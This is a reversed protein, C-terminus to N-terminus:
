CAPLPNTLLVSGEPKENDSIKHYPILLKFKIKKNALEIRKINGLEWQKWFIMPPLNAISGHLRVNNYKTYFLTLYIEAQELSEFHRQDLSKGLIAHFSEIHGNEQPTYPHTFVQNLHNEKFFDQVMKASFRPDNDNRVEITIEKKLMDNPQLHDIIISEWIRKVTHQTISFGIHWHLVVRTFVDIVTLIYAHKKHEEIWLFKIDMELMELPMSPTLIRYKAYQKCIKGKKLLLQNENMLRYVKKHNIYFGEIQLQYTMRRYGYVLDPDSHNKTIQNIVIENSQHTKEKDIIQITTSSCKRGRKRGIKPKYYYQHKTLGAIGLAHDRTLGL